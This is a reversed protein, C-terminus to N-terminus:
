VTDIYWLYQGNELTEYFISNDQPPASMVKTITNIKFLEAPVKLAKIEVGLDIYYSGTVGIKIEIMDKEYDTPWIQIM